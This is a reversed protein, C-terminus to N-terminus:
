SDKLAALVAQLEPSQQTRLKSHLLKRSSGDAAERSVEFAGSASLAGVISQGLFSLGLLWSSHAAVPQLLAPLPLLWSLGMLVLCGWFASTFLLGLAAYLRPAPYPATRM